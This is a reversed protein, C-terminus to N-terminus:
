PSFSTQVDSHIEAAIAFRRLHTLLHTLGPCLEFIGKGTIFHLSCVTIYKENKSDERNICALWTNRRQESLLRTRTCQNTIITPLSFMRLSPQAKDKSSCAGSRTRSGFIACIMMTFLWLCTRLVSITM